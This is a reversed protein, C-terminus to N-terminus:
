FGSIECISASPPASFLITGMIHKQAVPEPQYPAAASLLGQDHMGTRWAKEWTKDDGLCFHCSINQYGTDHTWFGWLMADETPQVGPVTSHILQVCKMNAILNRSKWRAQQGRLIICKDERHSPLFQASQLQLSNESEFSNIERLLQAAKKALRVACTGQTRRGDVVCSHWPNHQM